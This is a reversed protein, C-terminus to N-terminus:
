TATLCTLHWASVSDPTPFRHPRLLSVTTCWQNWLTATGITACVAMYSRLKATLGEASAPIRAFAHEQLGYLRLNHRDMCGAEGLVLQLWFGAKVIGFGPLEVLTRFLQLVADPRPAADYALVLDYLDQAQAALAVYARRKTTSLYKSTTGEARISACIDKCAEFHQTITAQVFMGIDFLHQPSRRAYTAIQPQHEAYM